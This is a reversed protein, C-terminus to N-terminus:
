KLLVGYVYKMDYKCSETLKKLLKGVVLKAGNIKAVRISIKEHGKKMRKHYWWFDNLFVYSHRLPLNGVWVFYCGLFSDKKETDVQDGNTEEKLASLKHQHM